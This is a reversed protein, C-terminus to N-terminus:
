EMNLINSLAKFIMFYNKVIEYSTLPREDNGKGFYELLQNSKYVGLLPAVSSMDISNDSFKFDLSEDHLIKKLFPLHFKLVNFGFLVIPHELGFHEYIFEGLIAAADEFSEGTNEAEVKDFGHIKTLSDNWTYLNPKYRIKVYKKDLIKKTNFDLVLLAISLPQCNATINDSNFNIGTTHCHIGLYKKNFMIKEKM